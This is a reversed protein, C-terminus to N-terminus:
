NSHRCCPATTIRRRVEMFFQGPQHSRPAVVSSPPPSLSEGDEQEVHWHTGTPLCLTMCKALTVTLGGPSHQTPHFLSAQPCVLGVLPILKKTQLSRVPGGRIASLMVHPLLGTSHGSVGPSAGLINRQSGPGEGGRPPPEPSIFVM